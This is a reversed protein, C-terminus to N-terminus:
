PWIILMRRYSVVVLTENHSVVNSIRLMRFRIKNSREDNRRRVVRLLCLLLKTVVSFHHQPRTCVSSSCCFRITSEISIASLKAVCNASVVRYTWVVRSDTTHKSRTKIINKAYSEVVHFPFQGLNCIWGDWICLVTLVHISISAIGAWTVWWFGFIILNLNVATVKWKQM